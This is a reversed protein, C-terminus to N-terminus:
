AGAADLRRTVLREAARVPPEGNEIAESLIQDLADGIGRVSDRVQEESFDGADLLPLAVAAGANAIYDPAYLNARDHLLEADSPDKLQNDAAGVIMRCHLQPITEANLTGGIACPAYVDCMRNYALHPEVAEGRLEGAVRRALGDDLDCILVEAGAAQLRRALPEGVDGVGQVLVTRGSLDDKGFVHRAAACICSFVGLATYPGPDVARDGNSRGGKVWKTEAAVVAMDEPTIGMDQSVSLTGQLSDLFRGFRQLLGVRVPQDLHGPVALVAQGGGHRYGIGAWKQTMSEALVMADMLGEEPEEYIRLRCGGMAAGLKTSHLAIFFWSGTPQDYSVAVSEGQWQSILDKMALFSIPDSLMQVSLQKDGLM